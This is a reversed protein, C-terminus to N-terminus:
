LVPEHPRHVRRQRGHPRERDGAVADRAADTGVLGRERCGLDDIEAAAADEGAERVRVDVEGGPRERAPVDLQVADGGEVLRERADGGVGAM